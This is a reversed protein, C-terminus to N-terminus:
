PTVLPRVEVGSGPSSAEPLDAAIGVAQDLDAAEILYYGGLVPAGATLAGDATRPRGAPGLSVSRGHRSRDIEHGGRVAAGHRDNFVGHAAGNAAAQEDTWSEWIEEDGYILAIYTSM